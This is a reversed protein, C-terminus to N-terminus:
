ENVWKKQGWWQILTVIFILAFLVWSITSAYGMRFFTFAAQYIYYVLVTTSNGPGGQTMVNIQGFVKFSSIISTVLLFFTTPSIMPITIKIFKQFENAGDIDAAEYLDEPVAKLGATYILICYGIHSWISMLMISFLAWQTDALWKPPDTVGLAKIFLTFPGQPSLMMIWVISVAVINSIYPMFTMLKVATKGIVYKDIFVACVLAIFVTTPVVGITYILNNKLSSTFWDDKWIDVYNKGFNFEIGSFGRYYDWDSFSILFSFIVPFGMFVLFGILNPALFAYGTLDTKIRRSLKM